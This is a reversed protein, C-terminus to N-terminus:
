VTNKILYICGQHAYDVQLFFKYQGWDELLGILYFMWMCCLVLIQRSIHKSIPFFFTNAFYLKRTTKPHFTIQVCRELMLFVFYVSWSEVGHLFSINQKLLNLDSVPPFFVCFYPALWFSAHIFRCYEGDKCITSVVCVGNELNYGSVCTSCNREGPGACAYCTPDCRCACDITVCQLLTFAKESTVNLLSISVKSLVEPCRRQRNNTRGLLIGCQLQLRLAVGWLLIGSRM